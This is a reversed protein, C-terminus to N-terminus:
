SVVIHDKVSQVNQAPIVYRGRDNQAYKSRNRQNTDNDPNVIIDQLEGTLLDITLNHVSGINSGDVDLVNQDSLDESFLEMCYM